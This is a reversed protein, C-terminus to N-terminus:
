PASGPTAPPQARSAEAAAPTGKRPTLVVTVRGNPNAPTAAKAGGSVTYTELANDYVIEAGTVQDAVETGSLRRTNAQGILRLKNGRGNFEIREAEGEVWENLGDRKQRFRALGGPGGRAVGSQYGDADEKVTISDSKLTMTGQSVVVNGNFTVVRNRIDVKGPQDAAIEMKQLRDSAEAFASPAGALLALALTAVRLSSPHPTNM